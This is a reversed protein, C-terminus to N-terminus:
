RNAIIKKFIKPGLFAYLSTPKTAEIVTNINLSAIAQGVVVEWPKSCELLGMLDNRIEKIRSIHFSLNVFQSYEGLYTPSSVEGLLVNGHL